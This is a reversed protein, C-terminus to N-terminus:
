RLELLIKLTGKRGAHAFAQAGDALPYRGAVLREVPV